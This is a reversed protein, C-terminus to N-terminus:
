RGARSGGSGLDSRDLEALRDLSVLRWGTASCAIEDTAPSRRPSGPPAPVPAAAFRHSRRGRGTSGAPRRGAGRGCSPCASSSRRWPRSGHRGRGRDRSRHTRVTEAPHERDFGDSPVGRPRVSSRSPGRRPRCIRPEAASTPRRSRPTTSCCAERRRGPRDPRDPPRLRPGRGGAGDAREARGAPDDHGPTSTRSSARLDARGPDARPGDVARRAAAAQPRTMLARGIALMQQEGGSLTGGKQGLREHLRPFLDFVREYDDAARRTRAAHLRGDPPEGPRDAPLLHAPGRALPRHRTRVLQHAPM